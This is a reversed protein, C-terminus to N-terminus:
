KESSKEAQKRARREALHDDIAEKKETVVQAASAYLDGLKEGAVKLLPTVNDRVKPWQEVVPRTLKEFDASTWLLDETEKSPRKKRRARDFM